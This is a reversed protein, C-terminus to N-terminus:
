FLGPLFWVCGYWELGGHDSVAQKNDRRELIRTEGKKAPQHCVLLSSSLGPNLPGPNEEGNRNRKRGTTYCGQPKEDSAGISRTGM